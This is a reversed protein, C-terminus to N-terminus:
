YIPSKPESYIRLSALSSLNRVVIVIFLLLITTPSMLGMWRVQATPVPCGGEQLLHLVPERTQCSPHM